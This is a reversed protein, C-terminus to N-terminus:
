YEDVCSERLFNISLGLVVWFVKSSQGRMVGIGPGQQKTKTGRDTPRGYSLPFFCTGFNCLSKQTIDPTEFNRSAADRTMAVLRGM